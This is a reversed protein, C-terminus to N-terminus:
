CVWFLLLFWNLKYYGAYVQPYISHFGLKYLNQYFPKLNLPKTLIDAVQQTSSVHLLRFLGQQLKGRVIHWELDIHKTREHFSFNSAIHRAFANEYYLLSPQFFPLYLEQWIHTVWRIECITLAM